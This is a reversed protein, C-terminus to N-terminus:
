LKILRKVGRGHLQARASSARRRGGAASDSAGIKSYLSMELEMRAAGSVFVTINFHKGVM